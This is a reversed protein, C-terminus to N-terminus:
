DEIFWDEWHFVEIRKAELDVKGVYRSIYPVLIEQSKSQFSLIPHVPNDIVLKVQFDSFIKEGEYPVLGILQYEFFEDGSLLADADKRPFYLVEGCLKESLNIDEFGKVLIIPGQKHNLIEIIALEKFKSGSSIYLSVPASLSNLIDGSVAVKLHGKLGFPATIKGISIFDNIM